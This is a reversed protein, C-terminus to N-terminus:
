AQGNGHAPEWGPFLKGKGKNDRKPSANYIDEGNLM